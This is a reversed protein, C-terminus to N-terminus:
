KALTLESCVQMNKQSIETKPTLKTVDSILSSNSPVLKNSHKCFSNQSKISNIFSKISSKITLNKSKVSTGFTEENSVIVQSTSM